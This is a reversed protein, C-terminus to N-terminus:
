VLGLPAPCPNERETLHQWFYIEIKIRIRTKRQSLNLDIMYDESVVVKKQVFFM